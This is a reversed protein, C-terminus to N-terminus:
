VPPTPVEHMFGRPANVAIGKGAEPAHEPLRYHSAYEIRADSTARVPIKWALTM